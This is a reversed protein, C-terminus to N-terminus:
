QELWKKASNFALCGSGAAVIAQKLSGSTVDGAAFVGAVSTQHNKDIIIYNDGDLKLQGDFIKTAPVSGIAVFVGDTDIKEELNNKLNRTEIGSVIKVGNKEVGIINTVVTDWIIEINQISFLKKQEAEDARFRDRRHILTVKKALQSLYIAEEVATNGGGIIVVNKGRFFFGDCTACYSLGRGRYVAEDSVDLARALSGTAIIVADSEYGIGSETKALFSKGSFDVETVSDYVQEVGLKKAQGQMADMLESGTIFNEFGPFNEIETTSTLQGGPQGGLIQVTEIGARISYIAATCGAPGSGIILMKTKKINTM